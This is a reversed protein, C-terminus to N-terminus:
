RLPISMRDLRWSAFGLLVAAEILVTASASALALITAHAGVAIAFGLAAPPIFLVYGLLLRFLLLPGTQDIDYPLLAYSAYGIAATWLVTVPATILAAFVAPVPAHGAALGIGALVFWGIMRWSQAVALASLREFLTAGSLWFLPRRLDTTLSSARMIALVLATNIVPFVVAILLEPDTTQAFRGLVYGIVLFLVTELATSRASNTRRYETWARWVFIAVGSPATGTASDLAVRSAAARASRSAMAAVVGGRLRQARAFRKMSRDYLEPYADRALSAVYAFLLATCGLLAVIAVLQVYAPALLIAGPHWAPLRLLVRGAPTAPGFAAAIDRLAPLTALIFVIPGLTQAFPVLRAPLLQRALPIAAILLFAILVLVIDAIVTAAPLSAPLYLLTIYLLGYAQRASGFAMQRAQVYVTAVFPSAPSGIIFRAEAPNAFLGAFRGGATVMWGFFAIAGCVILDSPIQEPLLHGPRAAGGAAREVRMVVFAGILLAFVLWLIARAPSRRLERVQNVFARGDAYLLARLTTM